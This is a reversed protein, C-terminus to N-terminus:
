PRTEQIELIESAALLFAGAGYEMSDDADVTRPDYGIQQVWGLKGSPQLAWNLGRWAQQVAPLYTEADLVGNNIGWALGFAFFGSSSAEPAPYEEPDLLSSRWLGDEGQVQILRTAMERMLEEFRPREPYDAPMHELVRALGALVWGNGRGWFIKEGAPTRPGSGDPQIVYRGDRYWLHEEQDYLYDYTEWWMTSVLDLYRTDGTAESVLAMTPPAMFLADCWSWNDNESWGVEPGPKPEAIMADFREVIPAIMHEHREVLYLETYTQAICHDDAHRPRPGPQWQNKESLAKAADFYAQDGTAGFTAMVGTFFAGRVWETDTVPQTGGDPLPAEYVLRDLQWDAVKKMTSLIYDRSFLDPEEQVPLAQPRCGWTPLTLVAIATAIATGGITQVQTTM